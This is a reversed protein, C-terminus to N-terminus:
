LDKPTITISQSIEHKGSQIGEIIADTAKARRTARRKQDRLRLVLRNYDRELQAQRLRASPSDFALANVRSSYRLHGRDANELMREAVDYFQDQLAAREQFEAIGSKIGPLIFINPREHFVADNIRLIELHISKHTAYFNKATSRLIRLRKRSQLRLIPSSLHRYDVLEGVLNDHSVKVWQNRIKDLKSRLRATQLRRLDDDQHQSVTRDQVMPTARIPTSGLRHRSAAETTHACGTSVLTTLLSFLCAALVNLLCRRERM